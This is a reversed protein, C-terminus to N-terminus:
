DDESMRFNSWAVAALYCASSLCLAWAAGVIGLAGLLPVGSGVLVVAQIAKPLVYIRSEGRSLGRLVLMQGANSLALGLVVIWLLQGHAAFDPTTCIAVLASGFAYALLILVGMVAAYLGLVIAILRKAAHQGTPVAAAREFIVPVFLQTMVGVVLATPANAIQLVAAYVGVASEGLRALVLWRDAYTSVSAFLSFAVFPMGYQFLKEVLEQTHASKSEGALVHFGPCRRRAQLLQSALTVLAGLGFGMLAVPGSPSLLVVAAAAFLLRMWPDAAQHLAVISRERLGNFVSALTAAGGAVIGFAVAVLLLAAWTAGFLGLVTLGLVLGAIAVWGAAARHLRFLQLLFQPLQGRDRYQSVFRLATQELPGYVFMHLVGAVTLGLALQGYAAPGLVGTLMKIIALTGLVALIQGVAVWLLEKGWRHGWRALPGFGVLTPLGDTM